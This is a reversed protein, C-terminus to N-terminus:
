SLVAGGLRAPSKSWLAEEALPQPRFANPNASPAKSSASRRAYIARWGLKAESYWHHGIECAFTDTNARIPQNLVSDGHWLSCLKKILVFAADGAADPPLNRLRVFEDSADAAETLGAPRVWGSATRVPQVLPNMRVLAGNSIPHQADAPLAQGLAIHAFLNSADPLDHFLIEALRKRDNAWGRAGRQQVLKATRQELNGEAIPLVVRGTGISLVEIDGPSVGSALAESIGALVPNGYGGIVHGWCRNRGLLAAINTQRIASRRLCSADIAEALTAMTPMGFSAARSKRDSRFFIQRQGDRDFAAIMFNTSVSTRSRVAEVSVDGLGAIGIESNLLLRLAALSCRESLAARRSRATPSVRRGFRHWWPSRVFLAHRIAPDEFCAQIDGLPLNKLLCGLVISSGSGAVVLDFDSLVSHGTVAGASSYLDALTMIQILARFGGGDLSLIRYAV